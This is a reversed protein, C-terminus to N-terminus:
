RKDFADDLQNLVDALDNREQVTLIGDEARYVPRLVIRSEGFFEASMGSAQQCIFVSTKLRVRNQLSKSEMALVQV